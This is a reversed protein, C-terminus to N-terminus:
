WQRGVTLIEVGSKSIFVTHETQASRSGDVTVTTWGDNWTKIEDSGETLAPEITFTM